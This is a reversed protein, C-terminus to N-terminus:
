ELGGEFGFYQAGPAPLADIFQRQSSEILVQEADNEAMGRAMLYRKADEDIFGVTSGHTCRVDDHMINLFPQASIRAERSLVTGRHLQHAVSEGAGPAVSIKGTFTVASKEAAFSYFKQETHNKGEIHHVHMGISVADDATARTLGFFRANAHQFINADITINATSNHINLFCDLQSEKEIQMACDLEIHCQQASLFIQASGQQANDFKLRLPHAASKALDLFFRAQTGSNKIALEKCEALAQPNIYIDTATEIRALKLEVSSGTTTVSVAKLAAASLEAANAIIQGTATVAAM